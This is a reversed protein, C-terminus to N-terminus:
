QRRQKDLSNQLNLGFETQAELIATLVQSPSMAPSTIRAWFDRWENQDGFPLVHYKTTENEIILALLSATAEDSVLNRIRTYLELTSSTGGQVYRTKENLLVTYITRVSTAPLERPPNNAARRLEALKVNLAQQLNMNPTRQGNGIAGVVSFGDLMGNSEVFKAFASWGTQDNPLVAYMTNEKVLIQYLRQALHYDGVKKELESIVRAKPELPRGKRYSLESAIMSGEIRYICIVGDDLKPTQQARAPWAISFLLLSLFVPNAFLAKLVVFRWVVNLLRM